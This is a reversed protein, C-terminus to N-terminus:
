CMTYLYLIIVYMYMCLCIQKIVFLKSNLIFIETVFYYFHSFYESSLESSYINNRLWNKNFFIQKNLKQVKSCSQIKQIVFLGVTYMKYNKRQM